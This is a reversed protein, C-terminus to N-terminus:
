PWLWGFIGATVLGYVVGDFIDRATRGWSHGFWISGMSANGAYALVAVTGCVQFVKLYEAGAALTAGAVYAVLLSLVLCHVFWLVLQKGMPHPGAPVVTVMAVPGDKYKAQWGADQRAKNNAAYPLSYQGPSVGKLASRVDEEGPLKQWDSNHYQLVTWIASSVIFVAVGSLVIPLWLSMLAVNM